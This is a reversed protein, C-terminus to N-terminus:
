KDEERLPHQITLITSIYDCRDCYEAEIVWTFFLTGGCKPCSM